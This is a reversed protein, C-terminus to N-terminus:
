TLTCVVKAIKYIKVLKQCKFHGYRICNADFYSISAVNIASMVHM